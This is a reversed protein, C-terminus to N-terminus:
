QSRCMIIPSNSALVIRFRIDEHLKQMNGLRERRCSRPTAAETGCRNSTQHVETSVFALAELLRTGGLPGAVAPELDQAFG